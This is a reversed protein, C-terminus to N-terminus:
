DINNSRDKIFSKVEELWGFKFISMLLIFVTILVSFWLNIAYNFCIFATGTTIIILGLAQMSLLVISLQENQKSSYYLMGLFLFCQTVVTTFAAGKAFHEPILLYNLFINIILGILFIINIGKIRGKAILFAGFCHSLSVPIFSLMLVVLLSHSSHYAEVYILNYLEESFFTCILTGGLGILLLAKFALGFLSKIDEGKALMNTFMPLLLSAFLFGVMNGAEIFRYAAAYLGAQNEGSDLLKDLMIADARNYASSFLLLLAFPYTYKVMKLLGKVSFSLRIELKAKKVLIVAVICAIIAAFLQAKPYWILEFNHGQYGRYVLYGLLVFLVIKDLASIYSDWRYKGIASLSSRLLMFVSNFFFVGIILLLMGLHDPLYDFLYGSLLTVILFVLGILLKYGLIEGFYSGLNDRNAAIHRSNYNQVGADNLFVFLFVFDFLIFYIGYADPGVLNQVGSEIVFIYIPKV